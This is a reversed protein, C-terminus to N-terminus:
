LSGRSVTSFVYKLSNYVADLFHTLDEASESTPIVPCQTTMEPDEDEGDGQAPPPQPLSFMDRFFDSTRALVSKHVRFSRSEAILM